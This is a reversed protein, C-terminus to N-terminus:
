GSCYECDDQDNEALKINIIAVQEATLTDLPTTAPLAQLVNLMQNYRIQGASVMSKLQDELTQVATETM